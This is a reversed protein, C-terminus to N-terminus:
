KYGKNFFYFEIIGLLSGFDYVIKFIVFAPEKFIFSKYLGILISFVVTSRLLVGIIGLIHYKYLRKSAWKAQRFVDYLTDPNKHYFIADRAVTAQYGLKASLTYDDTYGGIDFGGVRRFESRLISRFVPQTDKITHFHHRRKKPWGEQLNLCRAWVNEWNSVYENSSFTGKSVGRLIPLILYEVFSIDFSMDADVFVLIEGKAKSAGFNRATAPGKHSQHYLSLFGKRYTDKLNEVISVTSDTSGDDVVIIELPSYTQKLL